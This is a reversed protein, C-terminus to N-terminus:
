VRNHHTKIRDAHKTGASEITDPYITGQALIWEDANLGFKEYTKEKVSLFMDGIIKRKKEPEIVGDLASLFDDSADVIELNDYGHQNMYNLVAESEDLRMLGNDIHVGLVRDKGLV